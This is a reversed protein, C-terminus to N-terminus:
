RTRPETLRAAIKAPDQRCDLVAWVNATEGEIKYYVAFPFRRSLLRNYGFHTSHVGAYLHLSDIDSFLSDLFYEGLGSDQVEYFRFGDILDQEAEDLIRVNM